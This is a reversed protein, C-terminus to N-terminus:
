GSQKKPMRVAMGPKFSNRHKQDAQMVVEAVTADIKVVSTNLKSLKETIYGLTKVAEIKQKETHKGTEDAIINSLKAICAVLAEQGVLTSGKITEIVGLEKALRGMEPLAALRDANLDTLGIRSRLAQVQEQSFDRTGSIHAPANSPATEPNRPRLNAPLNEAIDTKSPKPM